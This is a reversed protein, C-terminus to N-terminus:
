GLFPIVSSVVGAVSGITSWWGGRNKKSKRNKLATLQKQVAEREQRMKTLQTKLMAANEQQKIVSKRLDNQQKNQQYVRNVNGRLTKLNRANVQGGNNQIGNGSGSLARELKAMYHDLAIVPATSKKLARENALQIQKNKANIEDLQKSFTKKLLEVKAQQDAVSKRLGNQQRNHQNIRNIELRLVGLGAPSMDGGSRKYVGEAKKSFATHKEQLYKPDIYTSITGFQKEINTMYHDRALGLATKEKKEKERQQQLQKYQVNMQEMQKKTEEAQRKIEQAQLKFQNASRYQKALDTLQQVLTKLFAAGFSKSGMKRQSNFLALADKYVQAQKAEFVPPAVPALDTGFDREMKSVYSDRALGIAAQHDAQATAELISRPEPLSGSAYIKVYARFYELLQQGTVAQGDTTKVVLNDPKLLYPVLVGLERIFPESIDKLKGDFAKTMAVKNGPYPM